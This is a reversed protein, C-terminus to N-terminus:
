RQGNDTTTIWSSGIVVNRMLSGLFHILSLSSPTYMLDHLRIFLVKDFVNSQLLNTDKVDINRIEYAFSYFDEVRGRFRGLLVRQFSQYSPGM